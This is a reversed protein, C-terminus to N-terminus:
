IQSYAVPELFIKTIRSVTNAYEPAAVIRKWDADAGFAAWNKDREEMDKFTLMYTLCPLDKGSIVDGLFVLNLKTRNFIAIEEDNFMKIKRRVADENYGEYTRLEFIRQSNAPIVPQPLGDFAIMFKSTYRTFPFKEPTLKTYADSAKAFDTDTKLSAAVAPYDNWSNYAILVYIKTPESKGTEKFVGVHQVGYKNLAPIFAHQLYNHLDNESTGFHMEYERLEYLAKGGNANETAKLSTVGATLASATLLSSKVFKRREM